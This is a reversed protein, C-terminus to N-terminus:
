VSRTSRRRASGARLVSPRDPAMRANVFGAYFRHARSLALALGEGDEPTLILHVHNPMQCYAQSRSASAAAPNGSGTAISLM